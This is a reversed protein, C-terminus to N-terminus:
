DDHRDEAEIELVAGTKADVEVEMVKGAATLIEVEYVLIGDDRELETEQITGPVEALAIEIVQAETLGAAEAATQASVTGAVGGALLLAGLAGGTIIKKQM